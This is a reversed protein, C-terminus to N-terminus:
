TNSLLEAIKAEYKAAEALRDSAAVNARQFAERIRCQELELFELNRECFKAYSKMSAARKLAIKQDLRLMAVETGFKLDFVDAPDCKAVACVKKGAYMTVAKVVHQGTKKDVYDFVKTEYNRM